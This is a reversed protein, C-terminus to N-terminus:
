FVTIKFRFFMTHLYYMNAICKFLFKDNVESDQINRTAIADQEMRLQILLACEENQLFIFFKQEKLQDATFTM